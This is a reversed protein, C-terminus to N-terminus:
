IRLAEGEKFETSTRYVFFGQETVYAKVNEGVSSIKGLFKWESRPFIPRLSCSHVVVVREMPDFKNQYVDFM